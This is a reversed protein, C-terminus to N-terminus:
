PRLHKEMGSAHRSPLKRARAPLNSAAMEAIRVKKRLTDVEASLEALRRETWLLKPQWRPDLVKKAM